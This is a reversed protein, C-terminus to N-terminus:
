ANQEKRCTWCIYTAPTSGFLHAAHTVTKCKPCEVMSSIDYDIPTRRYAHCEASHERGECRTGILDAGDALGQSWAADVVLGHIRDRLERYWDPPTDGLHKEAETLAAQVAITSDALDATNGM